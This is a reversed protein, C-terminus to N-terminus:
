ALLSAALSAGIAERRNRGAVRTASKRAARPRQASHPILSSGPQCPSWTTGTRTPPSVVGALPRARHGGHLRALPPRVGHGNRRTGPLRGEQRPVGGRGIAVEQQDGGRSGALGQGGALRGAGRAALLEDDDARRGGQARLPGVGRVADTQVEVRAPAVGVAGPPGVHVANGDGILLDRGRRVQERVMESARREDDKVLDM